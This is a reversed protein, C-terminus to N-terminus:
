IPSIRCVTEPMDPDCLYRYDNKIIQSRYEQMIENNWIEDITEDGFVSGARKQCRCNSRIGAFVDIRLYKWPWHCPIRNKPLKRAPKGAAHSGAEMPPFQKYLTIGKERAEEEVEPMVKRFYGRIDRDNNIFINEVTSDHHTSSLSLNDFGHKKAFDVINELERYNSRMILFLLSTRFGPSVAKYKKVADLSRMLDEYKAGNRISEYTDKTIGDISYSLDMNVKSFREAWKEDILLGNTTINQKLHRFSSALEFLEEFHRSLFVEGGRWLILEIDPIWKKIQEVTKQPMDDEYGDVFNCMKCRLNCRTTLVVGVARPKSDLVVKRQSLEINNLIKNKFWPEERHSSIEAARMFEKVSLDLRGQERLLEGRKIRLEDDEYGKRVAKKLERVSKKLDRSRAYINALEANFSGEKRNLRIAKKLEEVARDENGLGCLARGIEKRIEATDLGKEVAANLENLAAEYLGRDCYIRGIDRYARATDFGKEVSRRLEKVAEEYEGAKEHEWASRACLEGERIDEASLQMNKIDEAM